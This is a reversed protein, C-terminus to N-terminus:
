DSVHLLSGSFATVDYGLDPSIHDDSSKTINDIQKKKCYEKNKRDYYHLCELEIPQRFPKLVILDTGTIAEFALYSRVVLPYPMPIIEKIWSGGGDGHVDYNKSNNRNSTTMIGQQKKDNHIWLNISHDEERDLLALHGDVEVLKTSRRHMTDLIFYPIEIARNFKESSVDFGMIFSSGNPIDESCKWYIYGNVYVSQEDTVMFPPVDDTRRWINSGVTLVEGITEHSTVFDDKSVRTVLCVCVVKHKKTTPDFGFGFECEYTIELLNQKHKQYEDKLLEPTTTQIWSTKEGTSPNYILVSGLYTDTFCALGNIPKLMSGDYNSYPVSIGSCFRRQCALLPIGGSSLKEEASFFTMKRETCGLPSCEHVPSILLTTSRNEKNQLRALHLNILYSDEQIILRWGKCVCKFRMLSKAPLRSLIDCLIEYGDDIIVNNINDFNVNIDPSKM